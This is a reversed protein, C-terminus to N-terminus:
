TNKEDQLWKLIEKILVIRKDSFYHDGDLLVEKFDVGEKKFAEM